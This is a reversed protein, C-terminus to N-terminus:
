IGGGNAKGKQKLIFTSEIKLIGTAIGFGLGLLGIAPIWWSNIPFVKKYLNAASISSGAVICILCVWSLNAVEPPSAWIFLIGKIFAVIPISFSCLWNDNIAFILTCAVSALILFDCIRNFIAMLSFQPKSIGSGSKKAEGIEPFKSFPLLRNGILKLEPNKEIILKIIRYLFYVAYILLALYTGIFDLRKIYDQDEKEFPLYPIVFSFIALVALLLAFILAHHFLEKSEEWFERWFRNRSNTDNSKETKGEIKNTIFNEGTEETKYQETTGVIPVDGADKEESQKM